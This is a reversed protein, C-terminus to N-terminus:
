AVKSPYGQVPYGAAPYGPAATGGYFAPPASPGDLLDIQVWMSGQASRLSLATGPLAAAHRSLLERMRESWGDDADGGFAWFGITLVSVIGALWGAVAGASPRRVYPHEEALTAVDSVFAAWAAPHM